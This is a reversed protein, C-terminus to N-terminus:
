SSQKPRFIWQIFKLPVKPTYVLWNLVVTLFQTIELVPEPTKNLEVLLRVILLTLADDNLLAM